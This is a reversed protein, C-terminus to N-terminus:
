VIVATKGENSRGFLEPGITTHVREKNAANLYANGIDTVKVDLGNLAAILFGLRVSDRSVVSSFRNHQPVGQNRHGGAVLRAKRDLNHKVDFVFHYPIWKSGVPTLEGEELLRFAV